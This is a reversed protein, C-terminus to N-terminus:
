FKTLLLPFRPIILDRNPKLIAVSKQFTTRYTKSDEPAIAMRGITGTNTFLVDGPELKTRKHTELFDSETIQRAKEYNLQNGFVDKVSLFYFGSNEQNECDGHKGDTILHCLESLTFEEWKCDM